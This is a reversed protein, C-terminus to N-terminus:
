KKTKATTKKTTAKKAAPKKRAIKKAKEPPTIIGASVVMKVGEEVSMDLYKLDKKPVFLLFGSTPNPTTPVFVNVTEQATIRQVEGETVGTVFGISWSGKRPYELMVLPFFKAVQSDIATLFLYTLYITISIPATVLIGTIFYGRLRGSFSRKTLPAEASRKQQKKNM